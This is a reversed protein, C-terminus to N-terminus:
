VFTTKRISYIVGRHIKTFHMCYLMKIVNVINKTEPQVLNEVIYRDHVLM